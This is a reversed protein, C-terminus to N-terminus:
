LCGHSGARRFVDIVVALKFRFLNLWGPIETIDMMWVHNPHKAVISRGPKSAKPNPKRPCKRWRRVSEKSMKIGERALTQAIRLNGGFGAQNMTVALDRAVASYSMLPPVAKLLSGITAKGPEKVAQDIWRSVTQVSVLFLKATDEVTLSYTEKFLIVKFREQPSYHKRHRSDLREM